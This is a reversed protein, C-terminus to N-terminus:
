LNHGLAVNPDRVPIRVLVVATILSCARSGWVAAAISAPLIGADSLCKRTSRNLEYSKRKM